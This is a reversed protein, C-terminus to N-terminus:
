FLLQQDTKKVLPELLLDIRDDVAFKVIKKINPIFYDPLNIIDEPIAICDLDRHAFQKLFPGHYNDVISKPAKDLDIARLPYLTARNGYRHDENVLVNWMMMAKIHQPMNKYQDLPKSFSVTKVISPDGKEALEMVELKVKDIYKYIKDLDFNDALIMDIVEKLMIQTIKPYDSRRTELGKIEIFDLKRGEQSIVKAAYKKKANTAYYRSFLYENKLDLMSKDKPINHVRIFEDLASDNLYNQIRKIETDVDDSIECKINRKNFYPTLNVFISDTDGYLVYDMASKVEEMFNINTKHSMDFNDNSFRIIIENCHVASYKLAEQGTLTISSALNTNYFRFHENALVGYLSNMLIKLSQQKNDFIRTNTIDGTQKYQFMIGKFKKRDNFLTSIVSYYISEEIDHGCFICGSINVTATKEEIIKDLDNINITEEKGSHIPDIIYTFTKGKLNDRNYIYDFIIDPSVKGILTNPGINFSNIISPYLSTFDFDCLLGPGDKPYLGGRPDFVYAGPITEKVSDHNLNKASLGKKKLSTMFLGDAQGITSSAGNHTTTSSRRLEDQLSVHQLAEELEYLLDVDTRSYSVFKDIDEVYVMELRGEYVEKRKGIVKNAIYDLKYTPENTYTLDKYLRLQDLGIYGTIICTGSKHDVFVNSYPSFLETKIKLKRMRNTIYALDFKLVNWGCIFDPSMHNLKGLFAKIMESEDTFLTLNSYKKERVIDNIKDEIEGTLYLLYTHMEGDDLKFSIANIPYAAKGADPFIKDKFTYVEIDIYLINKNDISCEAKNHLYYDVAHKVEMKIDSEYCKSGQSRGKYNGINLQLNSHPEIIKSDGLSEYWYYNNFKQPYDYFIKNNDKDRFIYIIQERNSIHQVDVLRYDDTYFKDPIKYSYCEESQQIESVSILDKSKEQDLSFQSLDLTIEEELNLIDSDSTEKILDEILSLRNINGSFNNFLKGSLEGITIINEPKCLEVIKEVNKKCIDFAVIPAIDDGDFCLVAATILYASKNKEAYEKIIEYDKSTDSVYITKVKELDNPVNTICVSGSSEHLPCSSCDSFSRKM